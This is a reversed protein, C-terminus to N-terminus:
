GKWWYGLVSLMEDKGPTFSLDTKPLLCGKDDKYRMELMPPLDPSGPDDDPEADQHTARLRFREPACISVLRTYQVDITALESSEHCTM